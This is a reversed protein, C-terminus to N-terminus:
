PDDSPPAPVPALASDPLCSIQSGYKYCTVQRVSDHVISFNDNMETIKPGPAPQNQEAYEIGFLGGLIAIAGIVGFLDFGSQSTSM